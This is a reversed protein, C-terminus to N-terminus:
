TLRDVPEDCAIGVFAVGGALCAVRMVLASTGHGICIGVRADRTLGRRALHHEVRQQVLAVREWLQAHALTESNVIGGSSSSAFTRVCISDPDPARTANWLAQTM